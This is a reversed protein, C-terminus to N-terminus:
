LFYVLLYILLFLTIWLVTSGIPWHKIIDGPYIAKEIEIRKEIEPRNRPSSFYLLVTDAAIKLAAMPNRSFRIVPNPIYEFCIRGLRDTFAGVPNNVLWLFGLAGKRYFWDTDLSLKAKPKAVKLLIFFALATFLLLQLTPVVHEATFPAYHVSHPLANYLVEPYIGVLFCLCAAAAMGLLMNLPPDAAKVGSDKGFFAFYPLKL